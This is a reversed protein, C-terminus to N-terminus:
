CEDLDDEEEAVDLLRTIFEMTHHYFTNLVVDRSRKTNCRKLYYEFTPEEHGQQILVDYYQDVFEDPLLDGYEHDKVAKEIVQKLENM